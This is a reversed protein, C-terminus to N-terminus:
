QSLVFEAIAEAESDSVDQAPMGGQGELIISVVESQDYNDGATTLDPGAGGGLDEGHCSVCNQQYLEEGQATENASDGGDANGGDSSGGDDGGGCAALVMMFSIFGVLLWKKM